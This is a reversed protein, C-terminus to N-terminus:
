QELVHHHLRGAGIRRCRPVLVGRALRELAVLAAGDPDGEVRHGAPVVDFVDGTGVAPALGIELEVHGVRLGM